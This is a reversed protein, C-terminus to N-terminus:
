TPATSNVTVISKRCETEADRLQLRVVSAGALIANKTRVRADKSATSREDQGIKLLRKLAHLQDAAQALKTATNHPLPILPVLDTVQWLELRNLSDLREQYYDPGIADVDDTIPLFTLLTHVSNRALEIRKVMGAGHLNALVREAHQRRRTEATALWIAWILTAVTGIAGAWEPGKGDFPLTMLVHLGAALGLLALITLFVAGIFRLVQEKM